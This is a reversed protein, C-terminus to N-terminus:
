QVPKTKIGGMHKMRRQAIGSVYAGRSSVMALACMDIDYENKILINRSIRFFVESFTWDALIWWWFFPDWLFVLFGGTEGDSCM